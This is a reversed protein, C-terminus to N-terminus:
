ASWLSPSPMLRDCLISAWLQALYHLSSSLSFCTSPECSSHGAQDVQINILDAEGQCRCCTHVLLVSPLPFAAKSAAVPTLFALRGGRMNAYDFHRLHLQKTGKVVKCAQLVMHANPAQRLMHQLKQPRKAFSLTEPSHHQNPAPYIQQAPQEVDLAVEAWPKPGRGGGM